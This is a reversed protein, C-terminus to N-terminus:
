WKNTEFLPGFQAEIDWFWPNNANWEVIFPKESEDVYVDWGVLGVFPFSKHAEKCLSTIEDVFHIKIDSFRYKTDPHFEGVELGFEDYANKSVEGNLKVSIWIGGKSVNDVRNGGRGFRLNIFKVQVEGEKNFHTFVRFTNVSYPFVNQLSKHQSVVEQFVLDATAPLVDFQLDKSQLFLIGEGQSGNDPKIVIERNLTDLYQQVQNQNLVKGRRDIYKGGLRTLIPEITLGSFLKHDITKTESLRMFKQPNVRPLIEFRYVDDPIWGEIFEGRMETYLALWPWYAASGFTEHCYRKIEKKLKRNVIKKGSIKILRKRLQRAEDRSMSYSVFRSFRDSFNTLARKIRFLIRSPISYM